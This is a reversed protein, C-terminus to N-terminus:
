LPTKELLEAVIMEVIDSKPVFRGNKKLVNAVITQSKRSKTKRFEAEVAERLEQLYKAETHANGFVLM